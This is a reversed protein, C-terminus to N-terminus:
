TFQFMEIVEVPSSGAVKWSTAYPRLKRETSNIGWIWHHHYIRCIERSIEFPLLLHLKITCTCCIYWGHVALAIFYSFGCPGCVSFSTDVLDSYSHWDQKISYPQLMWDRVAHSSLVTFCSIPCVIGSCAFCSVTFYICNSLVISWTLELRRSPTYCEPNSLKWVKGM